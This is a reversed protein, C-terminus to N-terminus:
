EKAPLRALWRDALGPPLASLMRVALYSPWPFAIEPRNRELGAKILAAAREPEMIMPM